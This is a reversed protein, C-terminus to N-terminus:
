TESDFGSDGGGQPLAGLRVSSLLDLAVAPRGGPRGAATEAWLLVRFNFKNTQKNTQTCGGPGTTVMQNGGMKWSLSVVIFRVCSIRGHKCDGALSTFGSDSHQPRKTGCNNVWKRAFRSKKFCLHLLFLQLIWLLLM